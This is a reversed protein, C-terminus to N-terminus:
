SAAVNTLRVDRRVLKGIPSHPLEDVFKIDHPVKYGALERRCYAILEAPDVHAGPRRVVFAVGVHGWREDPRGIVAAEGVAPHAYLVNEVETPSVNEGGTIFIDDLRELIRYFGEADRHVLDKTHLWGGQLALDTAGLNRWYGRFVNPGRVLLEGDAAGDLLQGTQPDALAAEVYPYPKGAFGIKRRADEYPLCLVNPAAETLGYGQLLGVGRSHWKRLLPEPMPAGGVLAHRLCRLDTTAFNRHEALLLYNTPVGMMTTVQRQAILRLAREADFTRELLVTAGVWWALLPQSNWGGVHFQPLVSLVVDDGGLHVSRSLSLNTWFCNAHTLVVGKPRGTTGSTYLMLLPDNDRVDRTDSTGVPRRGRQYDAEIGDRGIRQRVPPELLRGLAAEAPVEFEPEVLFLVPDADALQESIERASLRWSLPVLVLRAKACAFFLVVHDVSNGTLTAVRDGPSYGAARLVDALHEARSDLDAYSVATRGDDIAIRHPTLRARESTWCGLTHLGDDTSVAKV